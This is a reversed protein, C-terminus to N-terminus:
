LKALVNVEYGLRYLYGDIDRVALKITLKTKGSGTARKAEVRDVAWGANVAHQANAISALSATAVAKVFQTSTFVRGVEFSISDHRWNSGTGKFSFVAIGTYVFLRNAGSPGGIVIEMGQPNEIGSLTVAM